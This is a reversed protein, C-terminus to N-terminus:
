KLRPIKTVEFPDSDREDGVRGKPDTLTARAFYTGPRPPYPMWLAATNAQNPSSPTFDALDNTYIDRRLRRGTSADHISLILPFTEGVAGKIRVRVTFTMGVERLELPTYRKRSQKTEILYDELPIRPVVPGRVRFSGLRADIQRPPPPDPDNFTEGLWDSLTAVGVLLGVVAAAGAVWRSLRQKLSSSRRTRTRPPSRKRTSL